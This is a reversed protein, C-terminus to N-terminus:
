PMEDDGKRPSYTPFYQAIEVASLSRFSVMEFAVLFGGQQARLFWHSDANCPRALVM